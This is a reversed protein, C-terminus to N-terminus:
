RAFALHRVRQIFIGLDHAIRLQVLEDDVSGRLGFRFLIRILM